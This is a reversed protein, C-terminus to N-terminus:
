VTRSIGRVKKKKSAFHRKFPSFVSKTKKSTLNLLESLDASGTLICFVIYIIIFLACKVYFPIIGGLLFSLLSTCAWAGLASSVPMVVWKVVRFRVHSVKLLKFISLFFNICESIMMLAIYGDIGFRPVLIFVLVLCLISDILNVKMCYVQEGLGKLMGDVASDLYMVPVLFGVIGLQRAAESSKYVGTGIEGSFCIFVAAACVSFLISARFVKEGIRKIRKEDELVACASLEPVLLGAFAYVVASPFLVLPMVMGQLTGYASLAESKGLGYEGLERPIAIHEATILGQRAFSGVGIPLALRSVRRFENTKKVREKGVYKKGSRDSFFLLLSSLLSMGEALAGGGVIALCAWELGDPLLLELGFSIIAIKAFQEAASVIANKYVRGVGTFYGSLAASSAVAPLGLAFAKLSPVTRADGLLKTGIPESLFFIVSATAVSFILSYLVASVAIKKLRKEPHPDKYKEILAFTESVAKVVATGIGATAATVSLGYVSTVLTFLGMCEAGVKLSIFANFRVAVFRLLINVGSLLLAKSMFSATKKM